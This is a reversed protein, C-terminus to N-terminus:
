SQSQPHQALFVLHSAQGQTVWVLTKRLQASGHARRHSIPCPPPTSVVGVLCQWLLLQSPKSTSLGACRSHMTHELQPWGGGGHSGGGQPPPPSFVAEKSTQLAPGPQPSRLRKQFPQFHQESHTLSMALVSRGPGRHYPACAPCGPWLPLLFLWEPSLAGASHSAGQVCTCKTEVHSGPKQGRSVPTFLRQAWGSHAM